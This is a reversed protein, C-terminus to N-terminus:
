IKAVINKIEVLDTGEIPMETLEGKLVYNYFKREKRIKECKRRFQYERNEAIAFIIAGVILASILFGAFVIRAAEWATTAWLVAIVSVMCAGFSVACVKGETADVKDVRIYQVRSRSM